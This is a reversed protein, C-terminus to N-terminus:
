FWRDHFFMRFIGREDDYLGNDRMTKAMKGVWLAVIGAIMVLSAVLAVLIQPFAIILLAAGILIMGPLYYKFSDM